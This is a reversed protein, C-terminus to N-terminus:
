IHLHITSHGPLTSTPLAGSDQMEQSQALVGGAMGGDSRRIMRYDM